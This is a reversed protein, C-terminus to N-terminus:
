REGSVEKLFAEILEYVTYEPEGPIANDFLAQAENLLEVARAQKAELERVRALLLPLATRAACAFEADQPRFYTWHSYGHNTEDFGNHALRIEAGDKSFGAVKWDPTAADCVAQLADLDIPPTMAEGSPARNRRRLVRVKKGCYMEIFGRVSEREDRRASEAFADLARAVPTCEKCLMHLPAELRRWVHTCLELAVQM